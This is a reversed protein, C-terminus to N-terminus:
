QTQRRWIVKNRYTIRYDCICDGTLHGKPKIYSKQDYFFSFVPQLCGVVVVVLFFVVLSFFSFHIKLNFYLSIPM